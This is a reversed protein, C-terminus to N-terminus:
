SSGQEVEGSDDCGNVGKIDGVTVTQGQSNTGTVSVNLDVDQGGGSCDSTWIYELTCTQSTANSLLFKNQNIGTVSWSYSTINTLNTVTATYDEPGGMTYIWESGSINVSSPIITTQGSGSGSGSGGGSGGGQTACNIWGGSSENDDNIGLYWGSWAFNPENSSIIKM